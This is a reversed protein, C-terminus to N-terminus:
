RVRVFEYTAIKNTLIIHNPRTKANKNKTLNAAERETQSNQSNQSLNAEKTQSAQTENSQEDTLFAVGFSEEFASLLERERRMSAEDAAKQTIFGLNLKLRGGVVSAEGGFSNVGTSGSLAGTKFKGDTKQDCSILIKQKETVFFEHESESANQMEQATFNEINKVFEADNVRVFEGEVDSLNELFVLKVFEFKVEDKQLSKQLVFGNETKKVGFEGTFLELFEMEANMRTMEGAMKTAGKVSVVVTGNKGSKVDGFFSNVGAFGALSEGKVSLTQIGGVLVFEGNPLLKTM